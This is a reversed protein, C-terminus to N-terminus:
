PSPESYFQGAWRRYEMIPGDGKTLKPHAVYAKNQWVPFDKAMDLGILPALVKGILRTTRGPATLGLCEEVNVALRIEVRLPDVPVPLVWFHVHTRLRPIRADVFLWGLGQLRLSYHVQHSVLFGGSSGKAPTTALDAEMVTGSFRLGKIDIAMGHIPPGHATDVSNEMVDQPHDALTYSVHGAPCFEAPKSSRVEWAAPHGRSHHWVLVIGDTERVELLRLRAKPPPSGCGTRVCDGSPSFAFHHFPCVINEGDVRGGHGLHAGLHPCFPRVARVLGSRTRYLVVDEGTLHRTLVRGAPLEDRFAVAYWGDPYPLRPTARNGTVLPTEGTSRALHFRFASPIKM